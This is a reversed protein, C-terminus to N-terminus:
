PLVEHISALLNGKQDTMEHFRGFFHPCCKRYPSVAMGPLVESLVFYRRHLLIPRIGADYLVSGFPVDSEVLYRKLAPPFAKLVISIRAVVHCYREHDLLLITRTLLRGSCQQWLREIRLVCGRRKEMYGTMYGDQTLAERSCACIDGPKVQIASGWDVDIQPEELLPIMDPQRIVAVSNGQGMILMEANNCALQWILRVYRCLM